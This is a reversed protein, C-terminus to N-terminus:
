KAFGEQLLLKKLDDVSLTQGQSVVKNKISLAPLTMIGLSAIVKIDSCLSTDVQVKLQQLAKQLNDFFKHCNKCGGGFVTITSVTNLTKKAIEIGINSQVKSNPEKKKLFRLIKM